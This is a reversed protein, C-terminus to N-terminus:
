REALVRSTVTGLLVSFWVLHMWLLALPVFALDRYISALADSGFESTSYLVFVTKLLELWTAGVAAGGLLAPWPLRSRGFWSPAVALAGFSLAWVLPIGVYHSSSWVLSTGVLGGLLLVTVWALFVPYLAFHTAWTRDSDGSKLLEGLDFLVAVYLQYGVFLASLVGFLGVQQWSADSVVSSLWPGISENTAGFISFSLADRLWEELQEDAELWAAAAGAVAMLPVVSELCWLALFGSRIHIRCQQIAERAVTQIM